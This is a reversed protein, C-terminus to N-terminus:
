PAFNSNNMNLVINGNIVSTGKDHLAIPHYNGESNITLTKNSNKINYTGSTDIATDTTTLTIASDSTYDGPSLTGAQATTGLTTSLSVGLIVAKILDHKNMNKIVQELRKKKKM